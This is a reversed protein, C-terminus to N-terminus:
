IKCKRMELLEPHNAQVWDDLREVPRTGNFWKRVHSYSVNAEKAAKCIGRIKGHEDIWCSQGRSTYM